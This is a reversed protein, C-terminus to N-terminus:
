LHLNSAIMGIMSAKESLLSCRRDYIIQGMKSFLRECPVSNMVLVLYRLTLVYLRPYITRHTKWWALPDNRSTNEGNFSMLPLPEDALYRDVEQRTELIPTLNTHALSKNHELEEWIGDGPVREVTVHQARGVDVTGALRCLEAKAEDGVTGPGVMGFAFTKLRPDLLTAVALKKDAPLSSFERALMSSKLSHAFEYSIGNNERSLSVSPDASDFRM